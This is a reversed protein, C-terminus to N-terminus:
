TLKMLKVIIVQIQVKEERRIIAHCNYNGVDMVELHMKINTLFIDKGFYVNKRWQLNEIRYNILPEM